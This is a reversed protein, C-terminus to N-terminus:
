EQFSVWKKKALVGLAVAILLLVAVGVVSWVIMDPTPKPIDLYQPNVEKDEQGCAM